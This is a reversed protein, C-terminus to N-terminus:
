DEEIFSKNNLNSEYNGEITNNQNGLISNEEENDYFSTNQAQEGPFKIMQPRIIYTQKEKDNANSKSKSRKVAFYFFDKGGEAYRSSIKFVEFTFPICCLLFVLHYIKLDELSSIYTM